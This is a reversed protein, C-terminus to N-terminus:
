AFQCMFVQKNERPSTKPRGLDTRAGPDVRIELLGPGTPNNALDDLAQIIEDPTHACAVRRYGCATAIGPIDISFGATSLGGVSDHAGNNLVVHLFNGRSQSGITTLGGMHMILAGDGDLCCIPRGPQSLNIGLAIQSAHGMSGVTLFDQGPSEDRSLRCEYLERSAKGTTSVILTGPDLHKTVLAIAAERSLGREPHDAPLPEGPAPAFTGKEIILATPASMKRATEAAWSVNGQAEVPDGSLLRHPLELTDLLPRTLRGQKVHQPEDAPKDPQGRWGILLLLPIAYVDTDALSLLPNVANGQGSNQMYVAGVGGTALHHGVALAVASGENAAVVHEKAPVHESLFRCFDSLLSDPVGSFFSINEDTLADFFVDCELM